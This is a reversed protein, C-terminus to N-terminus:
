LIKRAIPYRDQKEALLMRIESFPNLLNEM